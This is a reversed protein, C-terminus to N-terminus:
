SSCISLLKIGNNANITANISSDMNINNNNYATYVASNHPYYGHNMAYALEYM